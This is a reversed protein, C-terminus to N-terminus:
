GLGSINRELLEKNNKVTEEDIAGLKLAESQAWDFVRVLELGTPNLANRYFHYQGTEVLDAATNSVFTCMVHRSPSAKFLDHLVESNPLHEKEIIRRVIQFGFDSLPQKAQMEDLISVAEPMEGPPMSQHLKNRLHQFDADMSANIESLGANIGKKVLTKTENNRRIGTVGVWAYLFFAEIPGAKISRKVWALLTKKRRDIEDATFTAQKVVLSDILLNSQVDHSEGPMQNDSLARAFKVAFEEVIERVVHTNVESDDIESEDHDDIDNRINAVGETVFDYHGKVCDFMVVVARSIEIDNTYFAKASKRAIAEVEIYTDLPKKSRDRILEVMQKRRIGPDDSLHASETTREAKLKSVARSLRAKVKSDCYSINHTVRAAALAAKHAFEWAHPREAMLLLATDYARRVFAANKAIKYAADYATASLLDRIESPSLREKFGRKAAQLAEQTIGDRVAMAVASAKKEDTIKM